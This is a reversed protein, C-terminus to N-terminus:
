RGAVGLTVSLLCCVFVLSCLCGWGLLLALAHRPRVDLELGRHHTTAHTSPRFPLCGCTNHPKRQRTTQDDPRSEITASPRKGRLLSPRHPPQRPISTRMRMPGRARPTGGRYHIELGKVHGLLAMSGMSRPNSRRDRVMSVCVMMGGGGGGVWRCLASKGHLQVIVVGRAGAVVDRTRKRSRSVQM